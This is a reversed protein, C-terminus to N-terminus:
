LSSVKVEVKALAGSDDIVLLQHLGTAEFQYNLQENHSITKYYAGNIYWHQAVSAGIGQLRLQPLQGGQYRLVSGDKIGKISLGQGLALGGGHCAPDPKPLLNSARWAPKIWPMLSVPWLPVKKLIKNAFGEGSCHAGIRLGNDANLWYPLSDQNDKLMNFLAYM